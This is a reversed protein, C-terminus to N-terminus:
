VYDYAQMFKVFEALNLWKGGIGLSCGAQFDYSDLIERMDLKGNEDEYDEIDINFWECLDQILQEM